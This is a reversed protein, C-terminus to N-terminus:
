SHIDQAEHDSISGYPLLRVITDYEAALPFDAAPSGRFLFRVEIQSRLILSLFGHGFLAIEEKPGMDGNGAAHM